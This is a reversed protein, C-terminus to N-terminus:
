PWITYYQIYIDNYLPKESILRRERTKALVLRRLAKKGM